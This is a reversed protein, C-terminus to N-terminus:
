SANNNDINNRKCKDRFTSLSLGLSRAAKSYNGNAEKLAKKLLHSEICTMVDAFSMDRNIFCSGCAQMFLELTKEGKIENPLNELNISGNSFLVIRQIVNRLERINGPWTYNKLSDLAEDSIKIKKNPEFYKLFHNVLLPIDEVRERLPPITIPFVNIRYFLDMRFRGQAVLQNLDIKTATVLRIDLNISKQGGIRKIERSELVRLLKSQLDFPFDDIDDLFITGKDALEFQGKKQHDSGTFAGKEHGFLESEILNPPLTSLGVKILSQHSRNSVRHIYEAFLEKGVGTEGELLISCDSNAIKEISSLISIINSNFSIINSVNFNEM